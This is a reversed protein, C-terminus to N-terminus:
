AARGAAFEVLAGFLRRDDQDEEPHWQVGLVFDHDAHELGEITGDDTWGSAVLGDGLRHVAQHHHCRSVAGAGLIGALRSYPQIRVANPGFVGPTPLHRDHHVVDPLHQHLSGGCAVNLLQMGRCIALVPLDRHLAARLVALEWADRDPRTITSPRAAQGYWVPDVDPGGSLVLADLAAAAERAGAPVPPLLVPVGGARQVSDVYSQALLAAPREWYGWRVTELYTTIGVVPRRV